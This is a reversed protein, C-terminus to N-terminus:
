TPVLGLGLGLGLGPTEGLTTETTMLVGEVEVKAKGLAEHAGKLTTLEGELGVLRTTLVGREGELGEVELKLDAQTQAAEAAEAAAAATQQANTDKLSAVEAEAAVKAETTEALSSTLTSESTELTAM